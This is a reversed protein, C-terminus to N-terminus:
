DSLEPTRYGDARFCCVNNNNIVMGREVGHDPFQFFQVPDADSPEISVQTKRFCDIAADRFEGAWAIWGPHRGRSRTIPNQEQVGIDSQFIAKEVVHQRRNLLKM